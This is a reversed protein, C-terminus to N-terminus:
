TTSSFAERLALDLPVLPVGLAEVFSSSDLAVVKPATGSPRLAGRVLDADLSAASAVARGFQVRSLPAPGGLNLHLFVAPRLARARHHFRATESPSLAAAELARAEHDDAPEHRVGYKLIAAKVGDRVQRMAVFSRVEDRWLEVTGKDRLQGCVWQAFKGSKDYPALPGAVNSMRFVVCRDWGEALAKEFALKSRGYVSSPVPTDSICRSASKAGVGGDGCPKEGDPLVLDTSFHILLCDPVCAHLAELFNLPCNASMALAEDQECKAPSSIAACNVVVDPLTEHLASAVADDDGLDLYVSKVNPIEFPPNSRRHSYAVDFDDKLHAVLHQAVYGAGVVLVRLKSPTDLM